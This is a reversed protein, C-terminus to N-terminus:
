LKFVCRPHFVEFNIQCFIDRLISQDAFHAKLLLFIQLYIQICFNSRSEVCGSALCFYAVLYIWAAPDKDM